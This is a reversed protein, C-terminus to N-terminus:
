ERRTMLLPRDQSTLNTPMKPSLAYQARKAPKSSNRCSYQRIDRMRARTSMNTTCRVSNMHKPICGLKNRSIVSVYNGGLDDKANDDHYVGFTSHGLPGAEPPPPPLIVSSLRGIM